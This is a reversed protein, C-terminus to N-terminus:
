KENKLTNKFWRAMEQKRLMEDGYRNDINFKTVESKIIQGIFDKKSVDGFVTQIEDWSDLLIHANFGFERWFRPPHSGSEVTSHSGVTVHTIEHTLIALIREPCVNNFYHKDAKFIVVNGKRKKPGCSAYYSSTRQKYSYNIDSESIPYPKSQYPHSPKTINIVTLFARKIDDHSLNKYPLERSKPEQETNM